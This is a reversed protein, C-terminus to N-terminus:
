WRVLDFALGARTAPLTALERESLGLQRRLTDNYQRAFHVAGVVDAVGTGALLVAGIAAVPRRGTTGGWIALAITAVETVAMLAGYRPAGAYFNGAGFGPILSLVGALPVSKSESAYARQAASSTPARVDPPAAEPPPEVRPGPTAEPRAQAPGAVVSALRAEADARLRLSVDSPAAAMTWAGLFRRLEDEDLETLRERAQAEDIQGAQLKGALEWALATGLTKSAPPPPAEGPPAGLLTLGFAIIALV